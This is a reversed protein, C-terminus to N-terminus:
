QEGFPVESEDEKDPKQANKVIETYEVMYYLWGLIMFVMATYILWFPFSDFQIPQYNVKAPMEPRTITFESEGLGPIESDEGEPNDVYDIIANIEEKSLGPHEPMPIQNFEMFLANATSDGDAIMSQSSKVFNIIWEPDRRERVGSLAPGVLRQTPHHCAKCHAEFLEQGNIDGGQGSSVSALLLFFFLGSFKILNKM